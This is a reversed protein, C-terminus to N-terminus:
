CQVLASHFERARVLFAAPCGSYLLVGMLQCHAFNIQDSSPNTSKHKSDRHHLSEPTQRHVM